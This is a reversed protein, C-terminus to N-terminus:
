GLARYYIVADHPTGDADLAFAPIMGARTWGLHQYLHDAADGRKTDLTLLRFDARAAHDVIAEM